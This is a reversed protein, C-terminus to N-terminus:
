FDCQKTVCKSCDNTEHCVVLPQICYGYDAGFANLPPTGNSLVQLVQYPIAELPLLVQLVQHPIAELPLLVQLVQHPIAELPFQPATDKGTADNPLCVETKSTGEYQPVTKVISTDDVTIGAGVRDYLHFLLILLRPM